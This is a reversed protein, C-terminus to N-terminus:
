NHINPPCGVVHLKAPWIVNHLFAKHRDLLSLMKKGVVVLVISWEFGTALRWVTTELLYSTVVLGTFQLKSIWHLIFAFARFLM